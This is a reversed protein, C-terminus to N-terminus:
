LLPAALWCLDESLRRLLTPQKPQYESCQALVSQIWQETEAISSEDYCFLALEYNLYLSRMDLNASGSVAVADDILVHKAHVMRTRHVFFQVGAERLTRVFRGRAMDAVWHDSRVPLIVRVDAGLRAQLSLARMLGDDPVFYPTVIWIRRAARYMSVVIADYLADLDVDPGSPVVQVIRQDRLSDTRWATRPVQEGTAFEWDDAFIACLDEVAPGQLKLTTDLWRQPARREGMYEKALNMGGAIAVQGDFIAIKRHNRLNAKSKRHFPLVRMFSGTKGGARQLEPLLVFRATFSGLADVLLRVDIGESARQALRKVIARGVEDRGLIFTTIHISTTAAGIQTMLEIYAREGSTILETRNGTSASFLDYSRMINEVKAATGRLKVSAHATSGQLRQKQGARKELKRGALLLYLPVGIFPLLVVFLFWAISASQRQHSRLMYAFLVLALAFGILTALYPGFIATLAADINM